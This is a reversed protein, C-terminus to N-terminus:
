RELGNFVIFKSAIYNLVINQIETFIKVSIENCSMRTVFIYLLMEQLVLTALRATFFELLQKLIYRGQWINNKFVWIKTTFFSFIVGCFWSVANAILEHVSFCKILITYIAVSLFFTLGGFFLYLLGEKHKKYIHKFFAMMRLEMITDFLEKRREDM